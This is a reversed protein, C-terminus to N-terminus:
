LGDIEGSAPGAALGWPLDYAPRLWKCREDLEEQMDDDVRQGAKIQVRGPVKMHGSRTPAPVMIDQKAIWDGKDNKWSVSRVSPSQQPVAPFALRAAVCLGL